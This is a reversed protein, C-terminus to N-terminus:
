QRLTTGSRKRSECHSGAGGRCRCPVNPDSQGEPSRELVAHLGPGNAHIGNPWPVASDTANAQNRSQAQNPCRPPAVTRTVDLGLRSMIDNGHGREESKRALLGRSVQASLKATYRAHELRKAPFHDGMWERVTKPVYAVIHQMFVQM